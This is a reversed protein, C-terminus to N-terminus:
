LTRMGSWPLNQMLHCCRAAAKMLDGPGRYPWTPVTRRPLRYAGQYHDGVETHFYDPPGAAQNMFAPRFKHVASVIINLTDSVHRLSSPVLHHAACWAAEDAGIAASLLSLASASGDDSSTDMAQDAAIGAALESSSSDLMAKLRQVDCWHLQWAEFAALNALLLVTRDVPKDAAAEDSDLGAVEEAVGWETAYGAAAALGGLQATEPGYYYTRVHQMAESGFPQKIPYPTTNMLAALVAAEWMNGQLGGRLFLLASDLSIPLAAIFAGTPSPELRGKANLRAAGIQLYVGTSDCLSTQMIHPLLEAASAAHCGTPM